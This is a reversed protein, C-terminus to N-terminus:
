WLFHAPSSTSFACVRGPSSLGLPFSHLRFYLRFMLLLQSPLWVSCLNGLSPKARWFNSINLVLSVHDNCISIHFKQRNVTLEKTEIIHLYLNKQRMEWRLSLQNALYNSIQILFTNWWERDKETKKGKGKGWLRNTVSGKLIKHWAMKYCPQVSMQVWSFKGTSPHTVYNMRYLLHKTMMLKIIICKKEGSTSISTFEFSYIQHKNAKQMSSM